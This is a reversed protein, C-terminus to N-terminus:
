IPALRSPSKVRTRRAEIAHRLRKWKERANLAATPRDRRMVIDARLPWLEGFLQEPFLIWPRQDINRQGEFKRALGVEGTRETLRRTLRGARHRRLTPMIAVSDAAIFSLLQAVSAFGCETRQHM